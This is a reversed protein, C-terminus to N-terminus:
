RGPRRKWTFESLRAAGPVLPVTEFDPCPGDEAGNGRHANASNRLCGCPYYNAPDSTPSTM